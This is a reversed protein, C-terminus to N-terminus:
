TESASKWAILWSAMKTYLIYKNRAEHNENQLALVRNFVFRCAGAFRRMDREQQGDPRLQLKFAQLRNM